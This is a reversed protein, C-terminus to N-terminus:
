PKVLDMQNRRDWYSPRIGYNILRRPYDRPKHYLPIGRMLQGDKWISWDKTIREIEWQMVRGWGQSSKKGVHTVTSLLFRIKEPDGMCYWRVWLASRYFVPMHYAKYRGSGRNVVGRRKGFDILDSLSFDFRKNWCDKGDAFPGWQAWSCSYYWDKAHIRKLPLKTGQLPQGKPEALSSRGPTTLEQAGLDDRVQQYFLIGDLPLWEDCIVPTRLYATIQLPEFDSSSM